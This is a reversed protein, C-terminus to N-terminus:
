ICCSALSSSTCGMLAAPSFTITSGMHPTPWPHNGRSNDPPLVTMLSIWLSRLKYGNDQPPNHSATIWVGGAAKLPLISYSLVPTPAAAQALYVKIGNGALVVAVTRAFDESRFRMDYGIVMGQAQMGESLIYDATGQACYRVNEFTYDEAIGARWGDTGFKIETM